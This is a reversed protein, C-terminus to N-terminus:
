AGELSLAVALERAWIPTSGLAFTHGAHALLLAHAMVSAVAEAAPPPVANGIRERWAGHATGELEIPHEPDVLGQLAALELTTFPRHWTGDLAIILPTCQERAGPLRPDAVSAASNDHRASGAVTGAAEGWPVIGYAGRWPACGLRPDAISPAGSGPRTAGTVCGARDDWETVRFNSWYRHKSSAMRPDAVAQGGSSPGAGATVAGVHGDFSVVRFVDNFRPGGGLRPDAISCPGQGPSSQSTVTAAPEPWRQVRYQGYEGSYRVRPDAVSFRGNTPGTRSTVTRAAGEWEQVGYTGKIGSEVRPDQVAFRGTQVRGAGTVTPGPDDWPQVGLTGHHGARVLGVETLHGDEVRLGELDRWDGGPPILALRLWTIWQLRPLTHMAGAAPDEPLPMRGLVDGVAALPRLPPEYLFPPVKEVHRAVLLFRKRTQALGGLEGCDHSSRAVSYGASRLLAEIQEVLYEGRTAIGPVNELLFFAPPDDAWAELALMVSRLTLRNLAQYKGATAKKSSLLGSFGKCPPSTFVVDPAEGGAAARLDQPGAERWGDPPEQGHFARYQERDFLDRCTAPAGVAREFDACAAPDSDVGGLCRWSAELAGVRAHGRQFGRAAGGLGAFVHFHTLQLHDTM